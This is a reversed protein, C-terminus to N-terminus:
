LVGVSTVSDLLIRLFGSLRRCLCSKGECCSRWMSHVSVQTHISVSFQVNGLMKECHPTDGEGQLVLHERHRFADLM